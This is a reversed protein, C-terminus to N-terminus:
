KAPHRKNQWRDRRHHEAVYEVALMVETWGMDLYYTPIGDRTAVPIQTTPRPFRRRHDVTAALEREPSQSGTGVLELANELQRLGRAARHRDAAETVEAVKVKTAM